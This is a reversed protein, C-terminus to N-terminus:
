NGSYANYDVVVQWGTDMQTIGLLAHGRRFSSDILPQGPGTATHGQLHWDRALVKRYYRIIRGKPVFGGTSYVRETVYSGYPPSNEIPCKGTPVGSSDDRVLTSGPYVPISRLIVENKAVYPAKEVSPVDCAAIGTRGCGVVSVTAVVVSVTSTLRVGGPGVRHRM